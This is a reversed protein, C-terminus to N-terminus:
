PARPPRSAAAAGTARADVTHLGLREVGGRQALEPVEPGLDDPALDRRDGRLLARQDALRRPADPEADVPDRHAVERRLDLPGLHREDRRRVIRGDRSRSPRGWGAPTARAATASRMRAYSSTLVSLTSSSKSSM